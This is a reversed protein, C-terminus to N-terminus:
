GVPAPTRDNTENNSSVGNYSPSPIETVQAQRRKSLVAAAAGVGVLVLLLLFVKRGRRSGKVAASAEEIGEAALELGDQIDAIQDTALDLAEVSAM